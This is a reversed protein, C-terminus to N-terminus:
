VVSCDVQFDLQSHTLTTRAQIHVLICPMHRLLHPGAWGYAVQSCAEWDRRAYCSGRDSGLGASRVTCIQSLLWESSSLSDKKLLLRQHARVETGLSDTPSLHSPCHQSCFCHPLLLGAQPQSDISPAALTSWSWGM